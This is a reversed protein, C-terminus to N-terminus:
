GYLKLGRFRDRLVTVPAEAFRHIFWAGLLSVVIVFSVAFAGNFGLLVALAVIPSHVLYIAYTLDGLRRDVTIFRPAASTRTLGWLALLLGVFLVTAGLFGHTAGGRAVYTQFAHVSLLASIGMMIWLLKGSKTTAAYLVCGLVFLPAFQLAGFFRTQSGTWWVFLYGLLGFILAGGVVLEVRRTKHGITAVLAAILYFQCEIVVAWAASIVLYSGAGPLYALPLFANVVLAEWKWLPSSPDEAVLVAYGVVAAAWYAPFIKLARNVIFRLPAARYFLDLAESIVFGSVVFFLFVGINGLSLEALYGSMFITSHSILVFAALLFRYAGLPRYVRDAAVLTEATAVGPAVTTM